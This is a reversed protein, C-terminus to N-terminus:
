PHLNTPPRGPVRTTSAGKPSSRGARRGPCRPRRGQDRQQGLPTVRTVGGHNELRYGVPFAAAVDEHHSVVIIRRLIDNAISGDRIVEIMAMRGDRDLNAFAEDIIISQLM